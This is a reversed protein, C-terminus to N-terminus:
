KDWDRVLPVKADRLKQMYASLVKKAPLNRKENAEVWNAAINPMTTAWKKREEAPLTSFKAGEEAMKKEFVKAVNMLLSPVKATYEKGVDRIVTQVEPPLKDFFAKNMTVCGIMMSGLDIRTAYPAVQHLKNPYFGTTFAVLGDYVGTKVNNFHTAFDGQVPVAGIGAMWLSLSGAAGMKRGKLDDVKTVPFKTLIYDTDTAISALFVQKYKAWEAKLEPMEQHLDYIIRSVQLPDDSGFPAMFTVSHLPLKAPEFITYVWAMEAIGEEVAELNGGAKALTGGFAENWQIEHKGGADKLRKSVEPLYFEKLQKIWPLQPGHAASVTIKFTEAQAAPALALVAAALAAAMTRKM